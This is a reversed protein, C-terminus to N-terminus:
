RDGRGGSSWRQGSGSIVFFSDAVAGGAVEGDFRAALPRQVSWASRAPRAADRRGAEHARTPAAFILLGSSQSYDQQLNESRNDIVGYSIATLRRRRLPRMMMMENPKPVEAGM